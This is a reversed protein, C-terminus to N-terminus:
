NTTKKKVSWVPIPCGGRYKSDTNTHTHTLTYTNTHIHTHTNTYIYTCIITHMCLTMYVMNIINLHKHLVVLNSLFQSGRVIIFVLKFYKCYQIEPLFVSAQICNAMIKFRNM